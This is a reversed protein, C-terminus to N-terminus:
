PSKHQLLRGANLLEAEKFPRGVLEISTVPIEKDNIPIPLALAPNGALNVAATNQMAAVKAEAAPSGGGSLKPPLAKLTPLAVFDVRKLIDRLCSQWAPKRKLAEQYANPYRIKGLLFIAKTTANVESSGSFQLDYLWAGTAAVTKADADAQNWKSEFSPHLVVVNFSAAKLAADVAEDIKPDTGSLYLRGIKLQRPRSNAAVAARYQAAFGEQLLDMGKVLGDVDRALPGITDLNQPEIPFVGKLSVM